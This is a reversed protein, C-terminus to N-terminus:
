EWRFLKIALTYVIITWIAIMGIQPLVDILGAHEAAVLRLSDAVPTLPVFKGVSQLWAPMLFTPFFTGSLFMVPFSIVNSLSASQRENRAWAGIMLGIGTVM